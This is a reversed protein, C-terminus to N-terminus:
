VNVGIFTISIPIQSCPCQPTHPSNSAGCKSCIWGYRQAAQLPRQVCNEGNIGCGTHQCEHGTFPCASM